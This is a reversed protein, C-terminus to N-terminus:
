VGVAAWALGRTLTKVDGGGLEKPLEPLSEEIGKRTDASAVFVV